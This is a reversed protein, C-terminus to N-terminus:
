VSNLCYHSCVVMEHTRHSLEDVEVFEPEHRLKRRPKRGRMEYVFCYGLDKLMEIAASKGNHLTPKLVEIAVVPKHEELTAMAGEICEKEHGEVDVKIFSISSCRGIAEMDDLRELKFDVRRATPGADQMGKEVSTAGINIPNEIAPVTRRSNSCGVNIPVVNDVLDLNFQLLRYTRPHPEIAIVEDFYRSFFLSHNGINAGIDLCVGQRLRPFVKTALTDLSRREFRGETILMVTIYDFCFGAINPYMGSYEDIMRMLYRRAIRAEGERPRVILRGVDRLSM